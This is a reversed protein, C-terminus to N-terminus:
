NKGSGNEKGIEYINDFILKGQSMKLKYTKNGFKELHGKDIYIREKGTWPWDSESHNFPEIQLSKLDFDRTLNFLYLRFKTKSQLFQLVFLIDKKIGDKAYALLAQNVMKKLKDADFSFGYTLVGIHRTFRSDTFVTSLSPIWKNM